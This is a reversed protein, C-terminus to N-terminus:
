SNLVSYNKFVYYCILMSLMNTECINNNYIERM